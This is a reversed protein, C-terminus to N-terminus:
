IVFVKIHHRASNILYKAWSFAQEGWGSQKFYETDIKTSIVTIKRIIFLIQMVKLPFWNGSFNTFCISLRMHFYLSDSLVKEGFRYVQLGGRAVNCTGRPFQIIKKHNTEIAYKSDERLCILHLKKCVTNGRAGLRLYAGGKQTDEIFYARRKLLRRGKLLHRVSITASILLTVINRCFLLFYVKGTTCWKVHFSSNTQFIKHLITAPFVKKSRVWGWIREFRIEKVIKTVRLGEM